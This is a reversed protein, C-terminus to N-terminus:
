KVDLIVLTRPGAPVEFQVTDGAQHGMLAKGVPSESSIRCLSPEAEASGVIVYREEEGEETRVTVESGPRVVGGHQEPQLIAADALMREIMRIRGEVFSQQNKAELYDPSDWGEASQRALQLQEMVEPRRVTKLHELEALLKQKGEPTLLTTKGKDQM